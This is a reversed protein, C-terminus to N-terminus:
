PERRMTTFKNRYLRSDIRDLGLVTLTGLFDVRCRKSQLIRYTVQADNSRCISKCRVFTRRSQNGTSSPVEGQGGAPQWRANHLITNSERRCHSSLSSTPDMLPLARHTSGGRTAAVHSGLEFKVAYM